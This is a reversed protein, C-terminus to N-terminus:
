WPPSWASPRLPSPAPSAVVRKGTARAAIAHLDILLYTDGDIVTSGNIGDEALSRDYNEPMRQIDTFESMPLGFQRNDIQFVIVAYDDKIIRTANLLIEEVWLLPLTQGDLTIYSTKREGIEKIDSRRVHVIRKARQVPICFRQINRFTIVKQQLRRIDSSTLMAASETRGETTMYTNRRTATATASHHVFGALKAIDIQFLLSGDGQKTIGSFPAMTAFAPPLPQTVISIPSIISDVQLVFRSKGHRVLIFACDSCEPAGFIKSLPLVPLPVDRVVLVRSGDVLERLHQGAQTSSSSYVEEVNIQSVAYCQAGVRFGLCDIIALSLPLRLTFTTGVGVETQIEVQGGVKEVASRVVDMGVGRGSVKTVQEVSSFGPMFILNLIEAASMTQAQAATVFGKEIGRNRIQAVDIGKGDDTITIHIEGSKYQARLAVHGEEPKNAEVRVHKPEIGHDISNRVLHMLPEPLVDLISRDLLTDDGHLEFSIKKGVEAGTTRVVRRMSAFLPSVPSLRLKLVNRQLKSSFADLERCNDFLEVDSAYRTKLWEFRNKVMMFDGVLLMMQDILHRSVKMLEDDGGGTAAHSEAPGEKGEKDGLDIAKSTDVADVVDSLRALINFYRRSGESKTASLRGHVDRIANLSELLLDVHLSTLELKDNRVLDLVSESWHALDVLIPLGVMSSSGKLNHFTRFVTNIKDKDGPTKELEILNTELSLVNDSLEQLFTALMAGEHSAEEASQNNDFIEM